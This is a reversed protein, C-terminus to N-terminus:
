DKTSEKEEKIIGNDDDELLKEFMEKRDKLGQIEYGIEKLKSELGLMHFERAVEVWEEREEYAFNPKLPEPNEIM